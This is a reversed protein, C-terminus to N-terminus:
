FRGDRLLIDAHCGYDKSILHSDTSEPGVTHSFIQCLFFSSQTVNPDTAGAKLTHDLGRWLGASQEGTWALCSRRQPLNRQIRFSLAM